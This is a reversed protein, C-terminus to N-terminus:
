ITEELIRTITQLPVKEIIAHGVGDLLVCNVAGDQAKKDRHIVALADKLVTQPVATPLQYRRAM